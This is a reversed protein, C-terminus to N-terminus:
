ALNILVVGAAVVLTAVVRRVGIGEKFVAAGIIAGVVISTECGTYGAPSGSLRVGTGDVVTYVAITAGTALAALVAPVERRHPVGGVLSALGVAVVVVGALELPRPVERVLVAAILTVLLPASGRALPYMQGFEGLRYSLVLLLVYAVHLLASVGLWPLSSRDPAPAFVILPVSVAVGGVTVLVLAVLKDDFAHAIANWGAHAYAALLVMLAASVPLGGAILPVTVM